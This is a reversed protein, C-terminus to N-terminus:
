KNLSLIQTKYYNEVDFVDYRNPKNYILRHIRDGNWTVNIAQSFVDILWKRSPLERIVKVKVDSEDNM